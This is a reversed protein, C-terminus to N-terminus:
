IHSHKQPPSIQEDPPWDPKDSIFMRGGPPLMEALAIEIPKVGPFILYFSDTDQVPLHPMPPSPVHGIPGIVGCRYKGYDVVQIVDIRVLKEGCKLECAIPTELM